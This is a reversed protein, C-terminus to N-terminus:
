SASVGFKKARAEAKAKEAPDSLVGAYGGKKEGAKKDVVKKEAKGGDRGEKGRKRSGENEGENGRGRKRGTREPLAQNLSQVLSTDIGSGFRKARVLAKEAETVNVEIGFKAARAKRRELEDADSASALGAKFISEPAPDSPTPDDVTPASPKEAELAETAPQASSAAQPVVEPATKTPAQPKSAATEKSAAQSTPKVQSVDSQSDTAATPEPAAAAPTAKDSEGLRAVLESKNGSTPLNREQLLKKLETVKLSSRDAM